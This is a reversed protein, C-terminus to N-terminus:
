LKIGSLEGNMKLANDMNQKMIKKGNKLNM